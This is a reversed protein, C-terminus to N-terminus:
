LIESSTEAFIIEPTEALFKSYKEEIEPSIQALYKEQIIYKYKIIQRLMLRKCMLHRLEEETFNQNDISSLLELNIPFLVTKIESIQSNLMGQIFNFDTPYKETYLFLVEKLRVAETPCFDGSCFSFSTQFFFYVIFGTAMMLLHKKQTM